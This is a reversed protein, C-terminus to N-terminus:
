SGLVVPLRRWKINFTNQVMKFFAGNETLLELEEKGEEKNRDINLAINSRVFINLYRYFFTFSISIDDDNTWINENLWEINENTFM